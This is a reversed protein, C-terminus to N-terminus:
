SARQKGKNKIGKPKNAMLWESVPPPVFKAHTYLNASTDSLFTRPWADISKDHQAAFRDNDARAMHVPQIRATNLRTRPYPPLEEGRWWAHLRPHHDLVMPADDDDDSDNTQEPFAKEQENEPQIDELSLAGLTTNSARKKELGQPRLHRSSNRPAAAPKSTSSAPGPMAMTAAIMIPTPSKKPIRHKQHISSSMDRPHDMASSASAGTPTKVWQDTATDLTYVFSEPEAPKVLSKWVCPNVWGNSEPMKGKSSSPPAPSVRPGRMSTDMPTQPAVRRSFPPQPAISSWSAPAPSPAPPPPAVPRSFTTRYQSSPPPPPTPAPSAGPPAEMWFSNPTHTPEAAAWRQSTSVPRSQGSKGRMPNVARAYSVHQNAPSSTASSTATRSTSLLMEQTTLNAPSPEVWGNNSPPDARPQRPRSAAAPSPYSQQQYPHQQSPTPPASPSMPQQQYQSSAHRSRSAAPRQQQTPSTVRPSPHMSSWSPHADESPPATQVSSIVWEVSDIESSPVDAVSTGRSPPGPPARPRRPASSDFGLDKSRVPPAPWGHSAGKDQTSSPLATSM